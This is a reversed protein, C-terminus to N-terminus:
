LHQPCIARALAPEMLCCHFQNSRKNKKARLMYNTVMVSDGNSGTIPSDFPELSLCDWSYNDFANPYNEYPSTLFGDSSTSDEWLLYLPSGLIVERAWIDTNGRSLTIDELGNYNICDTISNGILYMRKTIQTNGKLFLLSLVVIFLAPKFYKPLSITQM